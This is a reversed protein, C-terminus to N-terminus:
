GRGSKELNLCTRTAITCCTICCAERPRIESGLTELFGLPPPYTCRYFFVPPKSFIKTSINETPLRMADANPSEGNDLYDAHFVRGLRHTIKCKIRYERTDTKNSLRMSCAGAPTRLM